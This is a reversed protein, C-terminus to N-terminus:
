KVKRAVHTPSVMFVPFGLAVLIQQAALESGPDLNFQGWTSIIEVTLPWAPITVGQMTQETTAPRLYAEVIAERPVLWRGWTAVGRADVQVDMVQRLPKLGRSLVVVYGGAFGALLLGGIPERLSEPLFALLSMLLALPILLLMGWKFARMALPNAKLLTVRGQFM